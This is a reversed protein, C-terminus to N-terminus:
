TMEQSTHEDDNCCATSTLQKRDDLQVMQTLFSDLKMVDAEVLAKM